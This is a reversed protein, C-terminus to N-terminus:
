TGGSPPFFCLEKGDYVFLTPQNDPAPTTWHIIDDPVKRWKGEDLWWWEDHGNVKNTRFQTRVVDSHACCSRYGTRKYAEDTTKANTYWDQVSQPANAYEPKWTSNAAMTMVVLIIALFGWYRFWRAFEEAYRNFYNHFHQLWEEDPPEDVCKCLSLYKGCKTCTAM